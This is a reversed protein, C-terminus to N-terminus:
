TDTQPIIVTDPIVVGDKSEQTPETKDWKTGTTDHKGCQLPAVALTASYPRLTGSAHHLPRQGGTRTDSLPLLTAPPILPDHLTM